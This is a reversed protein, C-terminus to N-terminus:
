GERDHRPDVANQEEARRFERHRCEGGQDRGPPRRHADDGLGRARDAAMALGLIRRDGAPRALVAERHRLGLAHAARLEQLLGRREGGVDGHDDSEALDKRAGQEVQRAVAADVEM